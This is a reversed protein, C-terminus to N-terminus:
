YLNGESMAVQNKIGSIFLGPILYKLGFLQAMEEEELIEELGTYM